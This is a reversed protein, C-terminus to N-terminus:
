VNKDDGTYVFLEIYEDVDKSHVVFDGRDIENKDEDGVVITVYANPNCEKLQEILEKVKM